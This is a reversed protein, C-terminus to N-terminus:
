GHSFTEKVNLRGQYLQAGIDYVGPVGCADARCHQCHRFVNIHAEAEQRAKHLEECTPAKMHRMDNQPILPIINYIMAGAAKVTAAVEEIHHDNVGPVLVTNVKVLTGSKAVKRIGNLQNRILIKAAEVGTYIEGHYFIKKNIKAEIEPDVANVTVTLTDILEIVEDAKEDLLLGNTSMCKILHPYKDKILRFTRLARDSALTDGPGAIGVVTIEPCQMLALDIFRSAEEPELVTSTVGPRQENENIKRDCFRCEINCGPAVPLHIRGKNKKCPGFCPHEKYVTEKDFAM